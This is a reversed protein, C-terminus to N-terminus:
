ENIVKSLNDCLNDISKTNLWNTSNYGLKFLFNYVYPLSLNNEKIIELNSLINKPFDSKVVTGNKLLIMYDSIELLQDMEHSIIIITKGKEKLEIILSLIAEISKPDLGATPEDFIVIDPNYSIVSALAVKRKQGGSLEFPSAKLFSTDLKVATIWKAAEFTAQKKPQGFNVPAFIIEKEVTTNFLQYEPFQFVLGINSRLKKPRCKKNNLLIKKQKITYKDDNININILGSYSSILYNLHQVFTSKGSGTNGIISNIKGKLIKLNINNIAHKEGPYNKFYFYNLNKAEVCPNQLLNEIDPEDKKTKEFNQLKNLNVNKKIDKVLIDESLTPKIKKLKSSIILSNPINLGIDILKQRHNIFINEPTDFFIVKGKDLVLIRDSNLADDMNHTISIVTKKYKTKMERMLKNIEIKGLPDLMSTSEDFIVIEPKLAFITAIAVKQKQGGSLNSPESDLLHEINVKKACEHIISSMQDIPCQYNQLGFEIDDYVTTGIFQNDPNQFVIGINKRIKFLTKESILIDNIKIEGSLPKLIGCLLKSLTSKGSGNHGIVSIYENAYIKFNIDTLTKNANVDYSFNINNVDLVLKQM